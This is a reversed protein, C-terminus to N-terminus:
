RERDHSLIYQKKIGTDTKHRNRVLGAGDSRMGVDATRAAWGPRKKAGQSAWVRTAVARVYCLLTSTYVRGGLPLVTSRPGGASLSLATTSM